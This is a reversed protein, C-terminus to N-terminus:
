HVTHRLTEGRHPEGVAGERCRCPGAERTNPEKARTGGCASQTGSTTGPGRQKPKVFGKAPNTGKNVEEASTSAQSAVIGRPVGDSSRCVENSTTARSPAGDLAMVTSLGVETASETGKIPKVSKLEDMINEYRTRRSSDGGVM